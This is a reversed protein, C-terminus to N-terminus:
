SALSIVVGMKGCVNSLNLFTNLITYSRHVSELCRCEKDWLATGRRQTLKASPHRHRACLLHESFALEKDDEPRKSHTDTSPEGEKCSACEAWAPPFDFISSLPHEQFCGEGLSCHCSPPHVGWREQGPNPTPLKWTRQTNDGQTGRHPSAWNGELTTNNPYYGKTAAKGERDGTGAGRGTGGTTGM